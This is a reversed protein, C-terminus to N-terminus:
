DLFSRIYIILTVFLGQDLTGTEPPIMITERNGIEKTERHNRIAEVVTIGRKGIEVLGVNQSELQIIVLVLACKKVELEKENANQRMIVVTEIM